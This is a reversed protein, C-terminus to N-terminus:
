ARASKKKTDEPMAMALPTLSLWEYGADTPHSTLMFRRGGAKEYEDLGRLHGLKWIVSLLTKGGTNITIKQGTKLDTVHMLVYFPFAGADVFAPRSKQWVIDYGQVRFPQDTFDKGAVTGADQLEFLEAEDGAALIREMIQLAIDETPEDQVAAARENLDTFMDALNPYRVAVETSQTM